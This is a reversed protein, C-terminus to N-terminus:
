VRYEWEMRQKQKLRKQHYLKYPEFIKKMAEESALTYELMLRVIESINLGTEKKIEYLEVLVISPLRLRIAKDLKTRIAWGPRMM